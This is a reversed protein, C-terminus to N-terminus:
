LTPGRWNDNTGYKRMNNMHSTFDVYNPPDFTEERTAPLEALFIDGSGGAGGSGRILGNVICFDRFTRDFEARIGEMQDLNQPLPPDLEWEFTGDVGSIGVIM